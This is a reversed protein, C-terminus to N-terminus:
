DKGILADELGSAVLILCPGAWVFIDCNLITSTILGALCYTSGDALTMLDKGILDLVVREILLLEVGEQLLDSCRNAVIILDIEEEVVTTNM